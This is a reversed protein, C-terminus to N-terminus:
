EHGKAAWTAISLTLGHHLNKKIDDYKTHSWLDGDFL